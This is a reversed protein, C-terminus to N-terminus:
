VYNNVGGNGRAMGSIWCRIVLAMADFNILVSKSFNPVLQIKPKVDTTDCHTGM